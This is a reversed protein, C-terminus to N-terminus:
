TWRKTIVLNWNKLLGTIALEQHHTISQQRSISTSSELTHLRHLHLWMPTICFSTQCPEASIVVFSQHTKFAQSHRKLFKLLHMQLFHLATIGDCTSARTGKVLLLTPMFFTVHAKPLAYCFLSVQGCLVCALQRKAYKLYLWICSLRHCKQGFTVCAKWKRRNLIM